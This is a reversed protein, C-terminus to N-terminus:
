RNSSPLEADIAHDSLPQIPTDYQSVVDAIGVRVAPPLDRTALVERLRGVDSTLDPRDDPTLAAIAVAAAERVTGVEDSLGRRIITRLTDTRDADTGIETLVQGTGLVAQRRVPDAEAVAATELASVLSGHSDFRDATYVLLELADTRVDPHNTEDITVYVLLKRCAAPSDLSDIAQGVLGVGRRQVGRDDDTIITTLTDFLASEYREGHEVLYGVIGDTVLERIGGNPDDLLVDLVPRYTDLM